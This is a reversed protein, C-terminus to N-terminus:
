LGARDACTSASAELHRGDSRIPETSTVSARQGLRFPTTLARGSAQRVPWTGVPWALGSDLRLSRRSNWRM